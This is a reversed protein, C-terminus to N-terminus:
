HYNCARFSHTLSLTPSNTPSRIPSHTPPHTLSHTLSHALSHHTLPHTLPHTPSNTPSHTLSHILSHTSCLQTFCLLAFYLLASCLLQTSYGYPPLNLTFITVLYHGPKVPNPQIPANANDGAGGEGEGKFQAPNKHTERMFYVCQLRPRFCRCVFPPRSTKANAFAVASVTTTIISDKQFCVITFFLENALKVLLRRQLFLWPWQNKVVFHQCFWNLVVWPCEMKKWLVVCCLLVVYCCLVYCCMLACCMVVCCMVSCLVYCCLVVACCMVVCCLVVCLM